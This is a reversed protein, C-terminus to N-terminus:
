RIHKQKIEFKWQYSNWAIVLLYMDLSDCIYPPQGYLLQMFEGSFKQEWAYQFDTKMLTHGRRQSSSKRQEVTTVQM